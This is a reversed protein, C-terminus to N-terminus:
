KNYHYLIAELVGGAIGRTRPRIAYALESEPRPDVEGLKTNEEVFIGDRILGRVAGAIQAKVPQDGVMAVTEGAEVIDGLHRVDKFLGANQSRLVRERTLGGVNLPHPSDPEPMGSHIVRGTYECDKTEIVMHCDEGACFGPGLGIVLPADTIKTGLNKKAMIADVLVDPQLSHRAEAQPDIIVPLEGAQWAAAIEDASSISRAVVGDVEQRGDYIAECFAAGRSVAIPEAVETLCVKFGANALRHAVASAVEGAGRILVKIECLPM